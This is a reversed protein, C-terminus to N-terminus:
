YQVEENCDLDNCAYWEAYCQDVPYGFTLCLNRKRLCEWYCPPAIGGKVQKMENKSLKKM